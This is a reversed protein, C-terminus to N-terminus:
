FVVKELSLSLVLALACFGLVATDNCNWRLPHMRTRGKGGTYCRADMAVALDEARQFVILFLPILVPVFARLRRFPGGEELNAGRALQAKMIRDTEDLLTPIFRLAITMMMAMEHAPFGIKRFPSFLSEIGDALEMPSTTLTLYGAFIVLFLLRLGMRTAGVIGEWTIRLIGWSWLPTGESFFLHLVVTFLVLLLIPRAGRFILLLSLKSFLAAVLLIGGWYLFLRPDGVLFTGTMFCLVGLIKCRPDLQHVFSQLPVYQGLTLHNLFRM